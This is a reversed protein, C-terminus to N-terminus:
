VISHFIVRIVCIIHALIAPFSLSAMVEMGLIRIDNSIMTVVPILWSTGEERFVNLMNNYMVIAHRNAESWDASLMSVLVSLRSGVVPGLGAPIRSECQTMMSSHNSIRSALTRMEPGIAVSGVPLALLQALATGNQRSICQNANAIFSAVDNM